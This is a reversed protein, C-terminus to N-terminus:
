GAVKKQTLQLVLAVAALLGLILNLWNVTNFVIGAGAACEGTCYFLVTGVPIGLWFLANLAFATMLGGRSGRTATHLAYAWWALFAIYVLAYLGTVDRSAPMYFQQTADIATRWLESLWALATLALAGNLSTFIKM